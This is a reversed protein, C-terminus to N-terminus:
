ACTGSPSTTTSLPSSRARRRRRTSSRWRRTSPGSSAPLRALIWRDMAPRDAIAPDATSPKWGFNAYLAFSGSYINKLTILFRGALERIVKEDFRRPVSVDSSAVLFLRIADVGYKEIMTAPEVVNGRSKSMKQGKEDLLLDNVVVAKYPPPDSISDQRNETNVVLADGLGTAIALMSYFWGRTQDIGEAIFDAPYQDAFKDRNEFPFHWQAFPMSGSDFWADIVESVRRMTGTCGAARCKWTHRDVNPKHPDFDKGARHRDAVRPRCLQRHRRPSHRRRRLGLGAAAHGLVSRALRGLRHQEQAMRRLPRRRGRPPHWDVRGNRALMTDKYATTKIFWSTRAYYLLPTGCRWCHPYQHVARGAKHLVGRRKLEEILESDADKVFEGGVVPMSKPFRGTSDVPQLFALNNRRGSAYDDAGFAPSMHVIGSGDTATVFDEGVVIEHEGEPYELWDIPRKYRMGVLERGMYKAVVEWRDDFDDGFVGKLRAEALILTRPDKGDRKRVEVYDLDPNVALAVNSVLTWPTTTWVLFRRSEGSTGRPEVDLAIYVSPDEVDEYGLAVEHSSLPTECRPCYPMIKHGRYLLGREHLTKLAWWVSEVYDNTYTVYPHEYDLWYGIRWSLKEWDGRYKFVSERCLRNFEAVGIAEIQQKGSIGLQKEIEIEVPLGHTDWGAKRSVRYGHMARHRCFLDKITRSFVHHIGPRGNATPPGEFFVWPAGKANKELTLKFLDESEWLALLERELDDPDRDPPLLQYQGASMTATM